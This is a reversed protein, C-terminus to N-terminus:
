GRQLTRTRRTYNDYSHSRGLRLWNFIGLANRRELRPHGGALGDLRFVPHRLPVPALQHAHHRLMRVGLDDAHQRFPIPNRARWRQPALHRQQRLNLVFRAVTEVDIAARLREADVPLLENLLQQVARRLVRADEVVRREGPRVDTGDAPEDVARRDDVLHRQAAAGVAGVCPGHDPDALLLREVLPLAELDQVRQRVAARPM